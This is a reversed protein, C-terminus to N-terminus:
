WRRQPTPTPIKHPPHERRGRRLLPSVVDAALLGARQSFGSVALELGDGAPSLSWGLGGLGAAYLRQQLVHGLLRCLLAAQPPDRAAAPSVLLM